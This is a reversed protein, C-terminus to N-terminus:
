EKPNDIPGHKLVFRGRETIVAAGEPDFAGGDWAMLDRECLPRLTAVYIPVYRQHRAVHRYEKGIRGLKGGHQETVILTRRQKPTISHWVNQARTIGLDLLRLNADYRAVAEAGAENLLWVRFNERDAEHFQDLVYEADEGNALRRAVIGWDM